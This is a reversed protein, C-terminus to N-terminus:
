SPAKAAGVRAYVNDTFAKDKGYKPDNMAAQMEAKSAFPKVSSDSPANEGNSRGGTISRPAVWGSADFKAKLSSAYAIAQAPNKETLENYLDQEAQSLGEPAWELFDTFKEESGFTKHLDTKLTTVALDAEAKLAAATADASKGEANNVNLGKVYARVMDETVGFEAAAKTTLEPSLEVPKGAEIKSLYDNYPAFRADDAGKVPEPKTEGAKAAAEAAVKEADTQPAKGGDLAAGAKNAEAIEEPTAQGSSSMSGGKVQESTAVGENLVVRTVGGQETAVSQGGSSQIQISDPM